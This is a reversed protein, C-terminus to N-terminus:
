SYSKKKRKETSNLTDVDKANSPQLKREKHYGFVELKILGYMDQAMDESNERRWKEVANLFSRLRM